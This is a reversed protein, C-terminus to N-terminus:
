GGLAITLAVLVVGIGLMSSGLVLPRLGAYRGLAFGVGFLMALAIGNSCRLALVPDRLVLFPVTMPFTSLAVLLFVGFAGRWMRLTLRPRRTPDPIATLWQRVKSIESASMTRALREPLADALLADAREPSPSARIEGIVRDTRGRAVLETLLYMFADVIGWAINCGIAGFLMTRIEERGATAAHISGTFTLAMILGFLVESLREVPDLVRGGEPRALASGESNSVIPRYARVGTAAVRDLRLGRPPFGGARCDDRAKLGGLTPLGRFPAVAWARGHFRGPLQLSTPPRSAREDPGPDVRRWASSARTRM